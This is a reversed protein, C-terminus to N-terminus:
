RPVVPNAAAISLAVAVSLLQVLCFMWVVRSEPWGAKEFAHHIPTMPFLRKKRLKVSAVQLPVPVLEAIMVFSIVFLPIAHQLVSALPHAPMVNLRGGMQEPLKLVGPRMMENVILGLVAGIPLSGVDGMFIKAPPANLVLFPIVAGMLAICLVMLVDQRMDLFGLAALGGALLVLLTGALGDMGDAFNYANAFFLIIFVAAFAGIKFDGHGHRLWYVAAGSIVLELLLKQKWGLGRKGQILRPVIFDDLFGIFAFGASLFMAAPLIPSVVLGSLQLYACSILFGIVIIIGGMTPTGQKKAHEPVFESVIQRSKMALLTRYIPLSFLAASGLAVWFTVSLMILTEQDLNM